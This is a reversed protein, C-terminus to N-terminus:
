RPPLAMLQCIMLPSFSVPTDTKQTSGPTSVPGISNCLDAAIRGVDRPTGEFSRLNPEFIEVGDFYAGAIAELKEPLTGGLAVTAISKKM